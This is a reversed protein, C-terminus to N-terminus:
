VLGNLGVSVLLDAPDQPQLASAMVLVAKVAGVILSNVTQDQEAQQVLQPCEVLTKQVNVSVTSGSQHLEKMASQVTTM